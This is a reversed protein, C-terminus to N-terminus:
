SVLLKISVLLLFGGFAKRLTADPITGAFRAGFYAGILLGVAVVAAYAWNVQQRKSYELM